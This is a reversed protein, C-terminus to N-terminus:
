GVFVPLSECMVSRNRDTAMATRATRATKARAPAAAGDNAPITKDDFMSTSVVSVVLMVFVCHIAAGKREVDTNVVIVSTFRSM